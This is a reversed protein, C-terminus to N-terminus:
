KSKLHNQVAKLNDTKTKLPGLKAALEREGLAHYVWTAFDNREPTVHSYFLGDDMKMLKVKLESLDKIKDGNSLVFHTEKKPGRLSSSKKRIKAGVALAKKVLKKAVKKM